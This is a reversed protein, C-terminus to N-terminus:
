LAHDPGLGAFCKLLLMHWLQQTSDKDPSLVPNVALFELVLKMTQMPHSSAAPGVLQLLGMRRDDSALARFHTDALTVVVAALRRGFEEL